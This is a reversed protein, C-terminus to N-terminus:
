SFSNNGSMALCIGAPAVRFTRTSRASNIRSEICSTLKVSTKDISSTIPTIKSNRRFIGAVITVANTKGAETNPVKATIFIIPKLRFLRDNIAIVSATPKTTSSAITTSSFMVRWMSIPLSLIAAARSPAFSIPEVTMVIVTERDATNKGIRKISPITPRSKRSNATVTPIETKIEPRTDSDIVGM